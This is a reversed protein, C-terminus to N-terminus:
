FKALTKNWDSPYYAMGAVSSNLGNRGFKLTGREKKYTTRWKEEKQAEAVASLVQKRLTVSRTASDPDRACRDIFREFLRCM